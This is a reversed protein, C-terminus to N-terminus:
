GSSGFIQRTHTTSLAYLYWKSTVRSASLGALLVSSGAYTVDVLAQLMHWYGCM